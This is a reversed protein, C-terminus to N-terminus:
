QSLFYLEFVHGIIEETSPWSTGLTDSSVATLDRM